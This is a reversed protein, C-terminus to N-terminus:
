DSLVKNHEYDNDDSLSSSSSHISTRSISLCRRKEDSSLYGVSKVIGYFFYILFGITMWIAFRYWTIISLQLMLNTNALISLMPILPVFPVKFSIERQVTPQRGLAILGITIILMIIVLLIIVGIPLSLNYVQADYIVLLINLIVINICIFIILWISIASSSHNPHIYSNSNFLQQWLSTNVLIIPVNKNYSDENESMSDCDDIIENDAIVTSANSCSEEEYRLILVSLAVLTYALLTGISMMDALQSVNFLTAMIAALIGSLLTAIVPTKYKHNINALFKFILRDSAMAYLIRPLPFMSGFLSTSLGALAGISIIWKAVPYGVMQFVYPLPAGNNQDYYPWMLTQMASIGSYAFSTVILSLIISIPISKQPNIVEEGTTAIADFGVFGYFCTAAGSMMGKIGFPFFGGVGSNPHSKVSNESLRWNNFDLKFSGVILSYLVVVLNLSTFIANFRTSEKVGIALMVTLLITIGFAFFDPYDSIHNIEIPMWKHLHNKITDNLLYDVYGSYGRAVSATGIVYELILNWGIIFAMFEGVTIYSYVYASGAKPVRAGFEAYCLGAFVSAM